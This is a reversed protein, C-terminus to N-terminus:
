IEWFTRWISCCRRSRRRAIRKVGSLGALERQRQRVIEFLKQKALQKDTTQLPVTTFRVEGDSRYRGSYLRAVRVNGGVRRKHRFVNCTM